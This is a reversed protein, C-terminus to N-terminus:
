IPDIYLGLELHKYVEESQVKVVLSQLTVELSKKDVMNYKLSFQVQIYLNIFNIQKRETVFAQDLFKCAASQFCVDSLEEELHILPYRFVQVSQLYCYNPWHLARRKNKM